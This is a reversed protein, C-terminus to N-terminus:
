KFEEKRLFKVHIKWQEVNKVEKGCSLFSFFFFVSKRWIKGTVVNVDTVVSVDM